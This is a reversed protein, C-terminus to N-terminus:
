GSDIVVECLQGATFISTLVPFMLLTDIDIKEVHPAETQCRIFLWVSILGKEPCIRHIMLMCAYVSYMYQVPQRYFDRTVSFVVWLNENLVVISPFFFVSATDTVGESDGCKPTLSASSMVPQLFDHIESHFYSTIDFHLKLDRVSLPCEKKYQHKSGEPHHVRRSSRPSLTQDGRKPTERPRQQCKDAWSSNPPNSIRSYDLQLTLCCSQSGSRRM